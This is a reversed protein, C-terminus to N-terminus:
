NFQDTWVDDEEAIKTSEKGDIIRAKLFSKDYLQELIFSDKVNAKLTPSIYFALRIAVLDRVHQSLTEPDIFKSTFSINITDADCLIFDGEVQYEEKSLGEVSRILVCEKPRRFRSTYGYIPSTPDKTLSKRAVACNWDHDDLVSELADPYFQVCSSAKTGEEFESTLPMIGVYGLALNFIRLEGKTTPRGIIGSFESPM